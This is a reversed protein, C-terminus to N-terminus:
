GLGRLRRGGLVHLHLHPVEQGGDPGCNVVVRYGSEAVGEQRAVEVAVALLHGLLAEHERADDLTALNAKPIVLLHTPAVPHIDRFALVTDDEYVKDAPIEGRVIRAFVNDPQAM